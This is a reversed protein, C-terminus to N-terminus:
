RTRLLGRSGLTEFCAVLAIAGAEMRRSPAARRRLIFDTLKLKIPKM